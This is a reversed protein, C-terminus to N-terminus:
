VVRFIMKRFHLSLRLAILQIKYATVTFCMSHAQARFCRHRLNAKQAMSRALSQGHSHLSQMSIKACHLTCTESLVTKATLRFLTTRAFTQRMCASRGRCGKKACLRLGERDQMM